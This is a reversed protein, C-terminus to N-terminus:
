GLLDLAISWRRCERKGQRRPRRSQRPFGPPYSLCLFLAVRPDAGQRTMGSPIMPLVHEQYPVQVDLVFPGPSDIMEQLADVLETKQPRPPARWGFGHAIAM